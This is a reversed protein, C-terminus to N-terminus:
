HSISFFIEPAQPKVLTRGVDLSTVSLMYSELSVLHLVITYSVSVTSISTSTTWMSELTRNVKGNRTSPAWNKKELKTGSRFVFFNFCSQIRIVAITYAKLLVFFLDSRFIWLFTRSTKYNIFTHPYNANFFIYASTAQVLPIQLKQWSIAIGEYCSHATFFHM